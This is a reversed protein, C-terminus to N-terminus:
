AQEISYLIFGQSAASECFFTYILGDAKFAHIYVERNRDYDRGEYVDEFTFGGWIPIPEVADQDSLNIAVTDSLSVWTYGAYEVEDMGGRLEHISQIERGRWNITDSLVYVAGVTWEQELKGDGSQAAYVANIEHMAVAYEEGVQYTTVRGTYAGAMESATKGVLEAYVPHDLHFRGGFIRNGSSDYLEGEGSRLGYAFGGRYEPIGGPRYYFGEGHFLNQSFTGTYRYAGDPYFLTGMGEYMSNKFEGAYLLAGGADFLKGQGAARGENVYGIYATKNDKAIIQVDGSHFKLALSNYRYAPVSLEEGDKRGLPAMSLVYWAGLLGLAIIIAFALRKSVLWRLLPYYDNKDRPKVNFLNKFFKSVSALGRTRWFTPNFLLRLKNWLGMFGKILINIFSTM